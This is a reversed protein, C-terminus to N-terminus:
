FFQVAFNKSSKPEINTFRNTTLLQKRYAPQYNWRIQHVHYAHSICCIVCEYSKRNKKYKKTRVINKESATM